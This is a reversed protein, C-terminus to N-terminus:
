VCTGLIRGVDGQPERATPSTACVTVKSDETHRERIVGGREGSTVSNQNTARISCLSDSGQILLKYILSIDRRLNKKRLITKLKQGKSFM